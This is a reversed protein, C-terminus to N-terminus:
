PQCRNLASLNLTKSTQLESPSPPLNESNRNSLNWRFVGIPEVKPWKWQAKGIPLKWWFFSFKPSFDEEPWETKYPIEGGDKEFPGGTDLKSACWSSRTTPQWPRDPPTGGLWSPAQPNPPQSAVNFCPSSTKKEWSFQHFNSGCNHHWTCPYQSAQYVSGKWMLAVKLCPIISSPGPSVAPLSTRHSM